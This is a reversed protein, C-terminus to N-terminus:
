PYISKDHLDEFLGAHPLRKDYPLKGIEGAKLLKRIYASHLEGWEKPQLTAPDLKFEGHATERRATTERVLSERWATV